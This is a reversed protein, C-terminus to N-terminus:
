DSEDMLDEEEAESQQSQDSLGHEESDVEEQQIDELNRGRPFFRKIHSAAYTRKLETGDLEELLYSGKPLHEKVKFPGNWRNAFLKGWQDELSKNYVLVLDGPDLPERLRAAMKRDWYRVSAERTKLLKRHAEKIIEDKRALQKTRAELLEETTSISLWDVGLYTDMELDVPLVPLQGFIIEYPTYGTTRKTSIRDSFLVLPLYERWKGGSQGCMKVLTDKITKHGREVMGNAEPYYPSTLILKAGIKQVAKVFEKEFEAGNDTTVTKISGYRYVWYELLFKAVNSSTLKVLPAAEVWGSLDDRAVILYKYQGAKIHCADLAVRGFLSSTGTPNRIESACFRTVLRQYTEEIGRHGLEEHVKRLLKEQYAEKSIVIQPAPSHKRMLRGESSFFRASNRRLKAFDERDMEPPKELTELYHRLHQWYGPAEWENEEEVTELSGIRYQYCPKILPEEEDFDPQDEYFEEEESSIPRRSLADPLTFTKGPKHVIDFSFLQIFAVWRTMPANPLSPSNIMQILSKADVQLEFHQGWLYTQLKKMIRAVGCLELKPQSYRSEVPSFVISEYLVPRDLGTDLEQQSLVAGAAIFSSDVALRIIGAEPSYDISKLVIDEGIIQKLRKFAEECDESWKWEAEKRTLQRLPAAKESLNEIFIRVYTVLGLFGRLETVDAPTPWTIIKNKKQKSVRRGEKSVVHGVIDLAPVCCAFKKGSITLGAEEIRFLIRELTVAYEWIFKRIGPNEKLVEGNYTSRPGKIGGDDIFVGVHEPIEDQLIWM